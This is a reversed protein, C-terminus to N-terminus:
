TLIISSADCYYRRLLFRLLLVGTAV